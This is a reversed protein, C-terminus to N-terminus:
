VNGEDGEIATKNEDNKIGKFDDILEEIINKNIKIYKFKNIPNEMEDKIEFSSTQQNYIYMEVKDEIIVLYLAVRRFLQEDDEDPYEHAFDELSVTSTLITYEAFVNKNNFRSRVDSKTNPDLIKLWDDNNFMRARADDIIVAQEGRYGDFPDNSGGSIFYSLQKKECFHKALTTKGSGAKGTIYVVKMSRNHQSQMKHRRYEFMNLITRKNKSYTYSDIYNTMNYEAITGDVIKDCIDGLKSGKIREESQNREKKWDWGNSSVVLEDSYQYKDEANKHTLYLLAGGIDAIMKNGWPKLTHIKCIDQVPMNIDKAFKEYSVPYKFKIVIHCHVDKKTGDENLDSDHIIGAWNEIYVLGEVCNVIYAFAENEGCNNLEAISSLKSVFECSREKIIKKEIM